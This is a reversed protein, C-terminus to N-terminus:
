ADQALGPRDDCEPHINRMDSLMLICCVAHDMHPLNSESDNEEGCWWYWLHRLLAGFLRGYAMGKEWNRDGYKKAGFAFVRAAGFLPRFPILDTRPKDQDFKVGGRDPFSKRESEAM